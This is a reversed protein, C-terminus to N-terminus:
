PFGRGVPSALGETINQMRNPPLRYPPDSDPPPFPYDFVWEFPGVSGVPSPYPLAVAQAAATGKKKFDSGLVSM